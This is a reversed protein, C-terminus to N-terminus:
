ALASFVAGSGVRSTRPNPGPPTSTIREGVIEGLGLVAEDGERRRLPGLKGGLAGFPAMAGEAQRQDLAQGALGVQQVFARNGDGPEVIVDGFAHFLQGVAGLM